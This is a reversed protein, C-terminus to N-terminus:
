PTRPPQGDLIRIPRGRHTATRMTVNELRTRSRLESAPSAWQELNAMIRETAIATNDPQIPGHEHIYATLATRIQRELSM